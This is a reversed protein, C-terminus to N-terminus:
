RKMLIGPNEEAIEKVKIVMPMVKSSIFEALSEKNVFEILYKGNFNKSKLERAYTIHNISSPVAKSDTSDIYYIESNLIVMPYFLFVYNWSSSYRKNEKKYYELSKVLPLFIGDYVGDHLAKWDKGQRVIKCFQVAKQSEKLYHHHENLKLHTFANLLIAGGGKKHVTYDKRPFTFEKPNLHKDRDSKNRGIFVFPNSNNKCECLLEVFIAIKNKEDIFFRKTALIDIERSKGLEEDEFAANTKVGFDLGELVNAVEQEMLYGSNRVAKTIEEKTPKNSL